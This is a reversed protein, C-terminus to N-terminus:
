GWFRVNSLMTTIHSSSSAAAFKQEHVDVRMSVLGLRHRERTRRQRAAATM